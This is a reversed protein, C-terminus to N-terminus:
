PGSTVLLWSDGQGAIAWSGMEYGDWPELTVGQELSVMAPGTELEGCGQKAMPGVSSCQGGAQCEPGTKAWRWPRVMRASHRDRTGRVPGLGSQCGHASTVATGM